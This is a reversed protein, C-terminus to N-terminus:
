KGVNMMQELKKLRKKLIDMEEIKQKMKSNEIKLNNIQQQQEQIAKTLVPIIKQYDVTWFDNNEDKPPFAAEPIVKYLEQAIFGITNDINKDDNLLNLKGNNMTATHQLYRMPKLLMITSLGYNISQRNTKLRGDSYTKWANARGQGTANTNNPLDLKYAPNTLGIGVNGGNENLITNSTSGSCQIFLSSSSENNRAIIENNDFVINTGLEDGIIFYGSGNSLSADTGGKIQLKQSPSNTGIGINGNPQIVLANRNPVSGSSGGDNTKFVLGGKYGASGFAYIGAIDTAAGGNWLRRFGIGYYPKASNFSGSSEQNNNETLYLTHKGSTNDLTENSVHLTAQPDVTGIGVKGSKITVTSDLASYLTDGTVTWGGGNLTSGDVWSTNGNADSSLIKGDGQSGDSLRFSGALHLLAQPSDTGIGMSDSVYMRGRFFGAYNDSGISESYVGYHTGGAIVSVYNFTGYKDGTGSGFLENYTGFHAGNGSGHLLSQNGYHHGNGSGYIESFNGYHTNDGNGNLLNYVGYHKGSSANYLFNRVGIHVGVGNSGISHSSGVQYGSGAGQLLTSIGYRAHNDSTSKNTVIQLATYETTNNITTKVDAAPLSGIGIRDAINYVQGATYGWDFDPKTSNILFWDTGNFYMFENLDTLYVMLGTAPNQISDLQDINMRPILMGRNTSKVDLMASNDPLSNDTNVAVQSYTTLTAALILVLFIIKKM